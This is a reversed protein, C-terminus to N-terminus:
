SLPCMFKLNYQLECEFHTFFSQDGKTEDEHGTYRSRSKTLFFSSNQDGSFMHKTRAIDMQLKTM